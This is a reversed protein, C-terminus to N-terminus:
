SVSGANSESGHQKALTGTPAVTGGEGNTRFNDLDFVADNLWNDFEASNSVLAEADEKSYPIEKDPDEKGIDVLLLAELDKVKLGKWNKVTAKTFESVFKEEDLAEVPTRTKRDMKTYMCNKRLRLLEPRSLNAVEIEWNRIGPYPIWASKTDVMLKKLYSM